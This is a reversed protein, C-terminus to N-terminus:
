QVFKPTGSYRLQIRVRLSDDLTTAELVSRVMALPTGESTYYVYLFM